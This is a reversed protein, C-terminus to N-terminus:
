VHGNMRIEPFAVASDAMSMARSVPRAEYEEITKCFGQHQVKM